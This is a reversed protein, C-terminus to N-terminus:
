TDTAESHMGAEIVDLARDILEQFPERGDNRVWEQVAAMLGGVLVGAMVRLEFDEPDRGLRDAIMVRIVNQASEMQEWTRARLDPESLILRTRALIVDRDRELIEGLIDTMTRRIALALPEDRPRAALAAVILPDYDDSIVVDDKSPFYNFFTSPSIDAAEAIQEITTQEYGQKLFLRMAERQIAARTRQKKRERLGVGTGTV